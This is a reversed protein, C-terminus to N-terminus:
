SVTGARALWGLGVRDAFLLRVTLLVVAEPLAEIM